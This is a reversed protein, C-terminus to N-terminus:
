GEERRRRLWIAGAIMAAGAVAGGLMEPTAVAAWSSRYILDVAAAPGNLNAAVDMDRAREAVGGAMLWTGPMVSILLRSIFKEILWHTDIALQLGKQAWLALVM